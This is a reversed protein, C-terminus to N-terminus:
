RLIMLGCPMTGSIWARPCSAKLVGEAMKLLPKRRPHRGHLGVLQLTCNIVKLKVSWPWQVTDWNWPTVLRRIAKAMKTSLLLEVEWIRLSNNKWTSCGTTLILITSLACIKVKKICLNTHDQWASLFM